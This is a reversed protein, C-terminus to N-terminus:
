EILEEVDYGVMKAAAPNVFTSNGQLDLGFIGEGASNLILENQYRIRQITAETEQQETIDRILWRLEIRRRELISEGAANLTASIQRGDDVRLRVERIPGQEEPLTQGPPAEQNIELLTLLNSFVSQDEPVVFVALPMGPLLDPSVQLLGAAM